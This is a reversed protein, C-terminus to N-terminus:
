ATSIDSFTYFNLGCTVTEGNGVVRSLIQEVEGGVSKEVMKRPLFDSIPNEGWLFHKRVENKKHTSQLPTFFFM